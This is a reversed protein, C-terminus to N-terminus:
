PQRSRLFTVQSTVHVVALARGLSATIQPAV